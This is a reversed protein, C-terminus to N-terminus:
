EEKRLIGTSDEFSGAEVTRLTTDIKYQAIPVYESKYFNYGKLIICDAYVETLYGARREPDSTKQLVKDVTYRGASSSPVNVSKFGKKTSYNSYSWNFQENLDLHSHGHFLIANKYHQMIGVLTPELSGWYANHINEPNGSDDSLTLHEFVFCRKNRYKELESQLWNLEKVWEDYKDFAHITGSPQGIFIFVDDGYTVTYYLDLGTYQKLEGLNDMISRNYSEHNGCIGYVPLNPHSEIVSKYEAMQPLYIEIDTDKYWFGINTMDGSHCCFNCNESEFFSLAQSLYAGNSGIGDLHLDSLLGFSYLKNGLGAPKMKSIDVRCIEADDKLIVLEKADPPAINEAILKTKGIKM